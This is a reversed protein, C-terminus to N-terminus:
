NEGPASLNALGVVEDDADSASLLVGRCQSALDLLHERRETEPEGRLLGTNHRDIVPKVEESERDLADASTVAPRHDM